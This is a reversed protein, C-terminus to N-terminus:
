KTYKYEGPEKRDNKKRNLDQRLLKIESHLERIDNQIMASLIKIVERNSIEKM